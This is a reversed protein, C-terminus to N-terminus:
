STSVSNYLYNCKFCLTSGNGRCFRSIESTVKPTAQKKTRKQKTGPKQGPKKGSTYPMGILVMSSLNPDLSGKTHYNLLENLKGHAEAVAIVNTHTTCKVNDM